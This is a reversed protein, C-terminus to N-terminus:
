IKVVAKGINQGYFMGVFGDASNDIGDVITSKSKFSGEAIWKSLNVMHEAGYKPGINPDSVIYGTMTVRKVTINFINTVGYGSYPGQVRSYQSIAGCAIIRGYPNMRLLAADLTEGGVNDYFIDIGDPALRALGEDVKEKKYNFVADFGLEKLLFNAKEDSGVSGIVRLGERKALQGVVHGVAGAAASVYFTEGKKPKGIEYFSAYAALGPMGLAALFTDLPFNLPNQILHAFGSQLKEATAVAYRSIPFDGRVIEGTPFSENKSRLIRALATNPIPQDLEYPGMVPKEVMRGKMYPDFSVYLVEVLISGNSLEQDLDFERSEVAIDQGAVTPTEHVRKFILSKNAVM